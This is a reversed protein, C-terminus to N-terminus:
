QIAIKHARMMTEDFYKGFSFIMMAKYHMTQRVRKRKEDTLQKQHTNSSFTIRQM